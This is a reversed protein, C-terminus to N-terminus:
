QLGAFGCVGASSLRSLVCDKGDGEFGGRAAKELDWQCMQISRRGNGEEEIGSGSGSGERSHM